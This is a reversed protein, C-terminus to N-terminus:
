DYDLKMEHSTPNAKMKNYAIGVALARAACLEDDHRITVISKKDIRNKEYSQNNAKKQLHASGPPPVKVHLIKLNFSDDIDFNENSQVTRMVETFIRQGASLPSGWEGM